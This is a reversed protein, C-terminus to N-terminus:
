LTAEIAYTGSGQLLVTTYAKPDSEATELLEGRIYEIYKIFKPDRSGLDIQM